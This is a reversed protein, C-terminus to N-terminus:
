TVVDPANSSNLWTRLLTKFDEHAFTNVTVEYEPHIARFQDVLEAFVKKPAPDSQYSNIILTEAALTTVSFVLLLLIILLFRKM